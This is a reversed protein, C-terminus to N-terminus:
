QSGDNSSDGYASALINDVVPATFGERVLMVKRVTAADLARATSAYALWDSPRELQLVALVQVLKNNEDDSDDDTSDGALLLLPFVDQLLRSQTAFLMAGWETVSHPAIEELAQRLVRSTQTLMAKWVMQQVDTDCKDPVQQVLLTQRLPQLLSTELRDPSEAASLEPETHIQFNEAMFFSHLTAWIPDGEVRTQLNAKLEQRYRQSFSALEDRVLQLMSNTKDGGHSAQSKDLLADRISLLAKSAASWSNWLCCSVDFEYQRVNDQELLNSLFTTAAQPPPQLPDEDDDMAELLAAAFDGSRPPSRSGSPPATPATSSVMMRGQCGVKQRLAAYVSLNTPDSNTGDDEVGWVSVCLVHAIDAIDVAMELAVTSLVAADEVLSSSRVASDTVVTLPAAKHRINAYHSLLWHRQLVSCHLTWEKWTGPMQERGASPVFDALMRCISALETVAADLHTDIVVTVGDPTTAAAATQLHEEMRLDEFFWDGVVTAILDLTQQWLIAIAETCLRELCAALPNGSTASSMCSGQWALLPHLLRISQQLIAATTNAHHHPQQENTNNDNEDDDDDDTSVIRAGELAPAATLQQASSFTGQRREQVLAAITPTCRQRLTEKQFAAYDQILKTTTATNAEEKTDDLIATEIQLIQLTLETSQAAQSQLEDEGLVDQQSQSASSYLEKCQHLLHERVRQLAHQHMEKVATRQAPPSAAAADAAANALRELLPLLTPPDLINSDDQLLLLFINSICESFTEM